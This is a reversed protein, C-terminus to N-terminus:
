VNQVFTLQTSIRDDSIHIEPSEGFCCIVVLNPGFGGSNGFEGSEGIGRNTVYGYTKRAVVTFQIMHPFDVRDSNKPSDDATKPLRRLNM